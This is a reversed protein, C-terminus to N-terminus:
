VHSAPFDVIFPPKYDKKQNIPFTGPLGPKIISDQPPQLFFLFEQNKLKLKLSFVGTGSNGLSSRAGHRGHSTCFTHREKM